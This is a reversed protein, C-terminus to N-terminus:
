LVLTPQECLNTGHEEGQPLQVSVLRNLVEQRDRFMETDFDFYVKIDSLGFISLSRIDRLGPMGTLAVEIPVTIQREIEEASWGPYQTILEVMPPSPDPYAVVDLLHFAYLGGFLLLLGLVCVLIRQVLSVEVIRAIM